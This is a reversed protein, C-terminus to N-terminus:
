PINLCIMTGLNQGFSAKNVSELFHHDASDYESSHYIIVNVIEFSDHKKNDMNMYLDEGHDSYAQDHSKIQSIHVCTSAQAQTNNEEQAGPHGLHDAKILRTSSFWPGRTLLWRGAMLTAM